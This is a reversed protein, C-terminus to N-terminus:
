NSLIKEYVKESQLIFREGCKWAREAMKKWIERKRCLLDALQFAEDWSSFALVGNEEGLKMKRALSTHCLLPTGAALVEACIGINECRPPVICVKFIRYCIQMNESKYAHIGWKMAAEVLNMAYSLFIQEGSTKWFKRGVWVNVMDKLDDEAKEYELFINIHERLNFDVFPIGRSPLCIPFTLDTNNDEYSPLVDDAFSALTKAEERGSFRLDAIIRIQAYTRRLRRIISVPLITGNWGGCILVKHMNPPLREVAEVLSRKKQNRLGSDIRFDDSVDKSHIWFELEHGHIRLWTLLALEQQEEFCGVSKPLRPTIVYLPSVELTDRSFPRLADILVDHDQAHEYGFPLLRDLTEKEYYADLFKRPNDIMRIRGSALALGELGNIQVSSKVDVLAIGEEQCCVTKSDFKENRLIADTKLRRWMSRDLGGNLSDDWLHWNLRELLERHLFRGAGVSEGERPPLYGMWEMLRGNRPELVFFTDLGLLLCGEDIYRKLVHFFRENLLDDSGLIVTGDINQWRLLSLAANWKAGLPRNEVEIYTFGNREAVCRSKEGESGAVVPLLEMVPALSSRLKKIHSFIIDTLELRQWMASVVGIRYPLNKKCILDSKSTNM